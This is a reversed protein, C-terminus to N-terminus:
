HGRVSCRAMKRQRQSSLTLAMLPGNRRPTLDTAPLWALSFNRCPPPPPPKNRGRMGSISAEPSISRRWRHVMPRGHRARCCGRALRSSEKHSGPIPISYPSHIAPALPGDDTVALLNSQPAFAIVPARDTLATNQQTGPQHYLVLANPLSFITFSGDQCARAMMTADASFSTSTGESQDCAWLPDGPAFGNSIGTEQWTNAMYTTIYYAGENQAFGFTMVSGDPEQQAYFPTFPELDDDGEYFVLPHAATSTVALQHSPQAGTASSCASLIVVMVLGLLGLVDRQCRRWSTIHCM